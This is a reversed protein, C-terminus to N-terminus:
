CKEQVVCTKRRSTLRLDDFVEGIQDSNQNAFSESGHFDSQCGENGLNYSM